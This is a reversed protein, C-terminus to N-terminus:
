RGFLKPFDPRVSMRPPRMCQGAWLIAAVTTGATGATGSRELRHKRERLVGSYSGCRTGPDSANRGRSWAWTRDCVKGGDRHPSGPTRACNTPDDSVDNCRGADEANGTSKNSACPKKPSTNGKRSLREQRPVVDSVSLPKACRASDGQATARNVLKSM